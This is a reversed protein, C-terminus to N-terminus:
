GRLPPCQDAKKITWFNQFGYEQSVDPSINDKFPILIESCRFIKWLKKLFCADKTTEIGIFFKIQGM